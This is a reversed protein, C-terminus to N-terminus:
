VRSGFFAVMWHLHNAWCTSTLLAVIGTQYCMALPKSEQHTNGATHVLGPISILPAHLRGDVWLKHTPTCSWFIWHNLHCISQQSVQTTWAKGHICCWPAMLCQLNDYSTPLHRGNVLFRNIKQQLCLCLNYWQLFSTSTMPQRTSASTTVPNKYIDIMHVTAELGTPALLPALNATNSGTGATTPVANSTPNAMPWYRSSTAHRSKSSQEAKKYSM